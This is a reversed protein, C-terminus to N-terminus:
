PKLTAGEGLVAELAVIAHCVKCPVRQPPRKLCGGLGWSSGLLRGAPELRSSNGGRRGKKGRRGGM